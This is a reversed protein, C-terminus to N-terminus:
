RARGEQVDLVAEPPVHRHAAAIRAAIREDITHPSVAWAAAEVTEDPLGWLALLASGLEDHTAGFVAKELTAGDVELVCRRRYEAFRDPAGDALVLWGVDHLVGASFALERLEPPAQAAALDAVARSHLDLQAVFTHDVGEYARIIGSAAALAQIARLGLMGVARPITTVRGRVGFFSSNVVQLVKASMAVDDAVVQAVQETSVDDRELLRNLAVVNAPPSPLAGIGAVAALAAPDAISRRLEAVREIVSCLDEAACPKSLFQHAAAAVRVSTEPRVEGSLMIRAVSPRRVKVRELLTAGDMGPMQADSVVADLDVREILELAAAGGDAFHIDWDRRSVRLVRRLSSLVAPEDDVFLVRYATM